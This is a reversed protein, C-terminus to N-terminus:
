QPAITYTYGNISDFIIEIRYNGAGPSAINGGDYKLKSGTDIGLNISWADNARFKFEGTGLTIDVSWKNPAVFTMDTDTSWGGPTADGIIGWNTLTASYSLSNYDVRIRYFGPLSITVNSEGEQIIKGANNPDAGWDGPWDRQQLFKFGGGATDLQAYIEFIGESVKIFQTANAPNWGAATSGGVLYLNDPFPNRLFTLNYVLTKDNFTVKYFADAVTNPLVISPGFEEAKGDYETDGYNKGKFTKTEAFKFKDGPKLRIEALEWTNDAKLIFKFDPPGEFQNFSGLLYLGSLNAAFTISPTVTYKLTEDNFRINVLGSYDCETNPGGGTTIEMIKDCNSDGWDVDKWDPTNKFKWAGGQLDIEKIEWTNDAVLEMEDAGWGNFAGAIFMKSNNAAFLQDAVKFIFTDSVQNRDTDTAVVTITYNGLGLDSAGFDKGKVVVSDQTGELEKTVRFVEGGLADKLVLTASALPTRPGEAFVVKVDFDGAKVSTKPSVSVITPPYNMLSDVDIKDDCGALMILSALSLWIFIKKTKM